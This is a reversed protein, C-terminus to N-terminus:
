TLTEFIGKTKNKVCDDWTFVRGSMCIYVGPTLVQAATMASGLNFAADSGELSYPIMAGTFVVVHQDGPGLTRAVITATAIMTDTGHIVVVMNEPSQSCERAIENRQEETMVLSDVAVPGVLHTELTCRAELLLRPLQSSRFTLEGTIADYQKDFTGGTTIIRM